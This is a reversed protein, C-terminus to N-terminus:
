GPRRWNSKNSACARPTKQPKQNATIALERMRAREEDTLERTKALARLANIEQVTADLSDDDGLGVTKKAAEQASPTFDEGPGHYLLEAFTGLASANPCTVYIADRSGWVRIPPDGTAPGFAEIPVQGARFLFEEGSKTRGVILYLPLDSPKIGKHALRSLGEAWATTIDPFENIEAEPGLQLWIWRLVWSLAYVLLFLMPLFWQRVLPNPSKTMLMQTLWGSVSDVRNNLYWLGWIILGLVIFHLTHWAWRGWKAFDTAQRFLPFIIGAIRRLWECTSYYLSYLNM